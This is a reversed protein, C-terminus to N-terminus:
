RKQIKKRVNIVGIVQSIVPLHLTDNGVVAAFSSQVVHKSVDVRQELHRVHGVYRDVEHRALRYRTKETSALIHNFHILRATTAPTTNHGDTM